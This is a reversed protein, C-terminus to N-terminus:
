KLDLVKFQRGDSVALKVPRPPGQPPVTVLAWLEQGHALPFPTQAHEAIFFDTQGSLTAYECPMGRGLTLTQTEGPRPQNALTPALRGDRVAPVVDWRHTKITSWEHAANWGYDDTLEGPPLGCADARLTLALYRGRIPQEPDFQVTRTWVMPCHHREWAYKVAISLVLAMQVCLVVVGKGRMTM